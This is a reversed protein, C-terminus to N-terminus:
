RISTMPVVKLFGISLGTYFGRWGSTLWIWKITEVMGVMAGPRVIAAVQQRRRIVEFPYAATQSIAGALAGSTLDVTTKSLLPQQAHTAMAHLASPSFSSSLDENHGTLDQLMRKCRGFVLFSTGAYPVMGLVTVSFGRYFKMIPFSQLLNNTTKLTTSPSAPPVPTTHNAGQSLAQRQAENVSIATTHTHYSPASSAGAGGQQRAARRRADGSFPAETSGETYITRIIRRLSGRAAKERKTEFALRVRILELPYTLFVSLVGSSSGALFLRAATEQQRTPMLAFHLKDYAMYKIAAYPFIRMLTASHGRFLAWMGNERVIERGARFVGLWHGSYKQYEPNQAQFLIKVRDLPAIATKAVCGAVGGAIGSRLVYSLSQKEARSAAETDVNADSSSSPSPPSPPLANRSKSGNAAAARPSSSQAPTAVEDTECVAHAAIWRSSTHQARTTQTPPSTEPMPRHNHPATHLTTNRPLLHTFRPPSPPPPPPKDSWTSPGPRRRVDEGDYDM